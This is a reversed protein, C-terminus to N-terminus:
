KRFTESWIRCMRWSVSGGLTNIRDVYSLAAASEISEMTATHKATAKMTHFTTSSYRTMIGAAHRMSHTFYRPCTSSSWKEDHPPTSSCFTSSQIWLSQLLPLAVSLLTSNRSGALKTGLDHVRRWQWDTKLNGAFVIIRFRGDSKLFHCLQWPRADSQNLVQFSPFQMGMKINTAM